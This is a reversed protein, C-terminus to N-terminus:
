AVLKARYQLLFFVNEVNDEVCSDPLNMLVPLNRMLRGRQTYQIQVSINTYVEIYLKRPSVLHKDKYSTSGSGNRSILLSQEGM